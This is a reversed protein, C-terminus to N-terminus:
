LLTEYKCPEPFKKRIYEGVIGHRFSEDSTSIFVNHRDPDPTVDVGVIKVDPEIKAHHYYINGYLSRFAGEYPYRMLLQIGKDRNILMPIHLEYDLIDYNRKQLIKMTRLLRESYNTSGNHKRKLKEIHRYLSGSCVPSMDAVRDMVFFDDNFLWFSETIEDNQCILKWTDRAREYKTAGLQHFEVQHDPVIHEPTGGVFWIKNYPFNKVVSRVSYILEDDQINNKLIYVVDYRM